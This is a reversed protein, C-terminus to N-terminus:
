DTRVHGVVRLSLTEWGSAVTLRQSRSAGRPIRRKSRWVEKIMCFENENVCLWAKM